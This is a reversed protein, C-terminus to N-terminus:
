SVTAGVTVATAGAAPDPPTAMLVVTRVVNLSGTRGPVIERTRRSGFPFGTDAVRRYSAALRVAMRVGAAGSDRAPCYEAVTDPAVSRAPLGIASGYVQPNVTRGYEIQFSALTGFLGASGSKLGTSTPTLNRAVSSPYTVPM